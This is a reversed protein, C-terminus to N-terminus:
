WGHLWQKLRRILFTASLTNYYLLVVM